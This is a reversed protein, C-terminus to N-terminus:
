CESDKGKWYEYLSENEFFFTIRSVFQKKTYFLRHEIHIIYTYM